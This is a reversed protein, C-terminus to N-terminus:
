RGRRGEGHEGEDVEQSGGSPGATGMLWVLALAGVGMIVLQQIRVALAMAVADAPALGATAVLLTFFMADWGVQSGPLAFLAVAGATTTAYTFVVGAPSAVAGLSWAAIGIGITVVIHGALAWGAARAYAALGRTAVEALADALQEVTDLLKGAFRGITGEGMFPALIRRSLAKWWMPRAALWALVLGGVGTLVAAVAVVDEYGEPVPLDSVAWVVAALLAASILGVIRATVGSALAPAMPVGYRKHAFWAAGVEGFPGPVAYNLLLGTCIIATLGAAPPNHGPPMLARWRLGMFFFACSMFGLAALLPAPRARQALDSMAEAGIDSRSVVLLALAVLGVGLAASLLGKRIIRGTDAGDFVSDADALLSRGADESDPSDPSM